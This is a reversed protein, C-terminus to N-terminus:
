FPLDDETFAVEKGFEEFPDEKEEKKIIPTQEFELIMFQIVPEGNQKRYFTPFWETINIDARDEIQVGSKFKVPVFINDYTGDQKKNSLQCSYLITDGYDKRYIRKKM